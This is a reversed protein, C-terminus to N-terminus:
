RASLLTTGNTVTSVSLAALAPSAARRHHTPREASGVEHAALQTHLARQEAADVATAALHQKAQNDDELRRIEERLDLMELELSAIRRNKNEVDQM